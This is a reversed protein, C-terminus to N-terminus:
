LSCLQDRRIVCCDCISLQSDRGHQLGKFSSTGEARRACTVMWPTSSYSETCQASCMRCLSATATILTLMQPSGRTGRLRPITTSPLRRTYRPPLVMEVASLATVM